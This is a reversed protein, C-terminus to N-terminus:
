NLRIVDFKTGDILPIGVLNTPIGMLKPRYFGWKAFLPSIKSYVVQLRVIGRWRSVDNIALQKPALSAAMRCALGCIVLGLRSYEPPRRIM